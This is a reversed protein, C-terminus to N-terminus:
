ASGAFGSSDCAAFSYVRGVLGGQAAGPAAESPRRHAPDRPRLHHRGALGHRGHVGPLAAGLARDGLASGRRRRGPRDDLHAGDAPLLGPVLLLGYCATQRLPRHLDPHLLPDAAAAGAALRQLCGVAQQGAIGAAAYATSYFAYGLVIWMAGVGFVEASAGHILSSGFALGLVVYTVVIAAVQSLALIGMGLVKGLLLQTPRVAALLVEVVRSSKEESVGVTIRAGYTLIMIYILITISLGTLRSTLNALPPTLGHIPLSM